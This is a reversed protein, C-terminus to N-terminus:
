ARLYKMVNLRSVKFFPYMTVFVSVVFVIIAQQIYIMPDLSTQLIAEMGYEEVMEAVGEGFRIPNIYFYACVPFAGLIGLLAGIISLIIIEILFTTALKAKRMGIGVLIGFEKRRETLMMILTGLIGFTIVMYLIFMFVYGEVRDTEIMKKLQPTVEEWSKATYGDPLKQNLQKAVQNAQGRNKIDISINTLLGAAGYFDQAVSLPLFVLQRSLEPSGYKILGEIPFKGAANTGHYGQGLLIITDGVALKLYEALGVGIMAGNEGPKLYRGASIRDDLQNMSKEIELDGGVVMVGKTIDESAALAFSEIRPASSTIKPQADLFNKIEANFSMLDDMSAEEAYVSDQIQIYGLHAGVMSNIMNKYTGEKM